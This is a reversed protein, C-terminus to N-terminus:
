DNYGTYLKSIIKKWEKTGLQSELAIKIVRLENAQNDIKNELNLYNSEAQEFKGIKNQTKLDEIEELLKLIFDMFGRSNRKSMESKLIKNEDDNLRFHKKLNRKKRM